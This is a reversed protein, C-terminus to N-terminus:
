QGSDPVATHKTDWTLIFFKFSHNDRFFTNVSNSMALFTVFILLIWIMQFVNPIFENGWYSDFRMRLAGQLDPHKNIKCLSALQRIFSYKKRLHGIKSSCLPDVVGDPRFHWWNDIKRLQDSAGILGRRVSRCMYLALVCITVSIIILPGFFTNRKDDQLDIYLKIILGFFAILFGQTTFLWTLRHNVLMNEHEIASRIRKWDALAKDKAEDFTNYKKSSRAMITRYYIPKLALTVLEEKESNSLWLYKMRYYNFWIIFIPYTKDPPMIKSDSDYYYDNCQIKEPIFCKCLALLLDHDKALLDLYSRVDSTQEAISNLKNRLQELCNAAKAEPIKAGLDSNKV